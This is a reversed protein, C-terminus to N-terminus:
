LLLLVGAKGTQQAILAGGGAAGGGGPSDCWSSSSDRSSRGTKARPRPGNVDPSARTTPSSSETGPLIDGASPASYLRLTNPSRSSAGEPASSITRRTGS